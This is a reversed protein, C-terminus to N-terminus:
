NCKAIILTIDDHQEYPSFARVEDVVASLLAEPCLDRHRCLTDVLRDEGFEDYTENFAETVGDTYIVLLDGPALTIRRTACEWRPFLGIVTSTSALRELSGDARFLLAANHGCNAYEFEGSHDDYVAFFLTAFRDDPSNEYFLQNVSKLLRPLDDLALAYRSRLNAQLNAMLLAGAIGKGSIDALVFALHWAAAALTRTAGRELRQPSGLDLFDYYDGGVQRAQICSGAYDLTSLPPLFQPFLRSQVEKAIELERIVRREAELKEAAVRRQSEVAHTLEDFSVLSFTNGDIDRFRVSVSGWIPTEEGLLKPSLQKSGPTATHPASSSPPPQADYKIRRLRPTGSFRVGKKSWEQFKTAVDSTVLVVQTARGILKYEVSKPKPAVLTLITTGDSPSVAVWREGSQLRTDIVLHFGLQDLYFDLSRDVDRVYIRVAHISLFPNVAAHHVTPSSLPALSGDAM